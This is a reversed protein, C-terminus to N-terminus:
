PIIVVSRNSAAAVPLWRAYGHRQRARLLLSSTVLLRKIKEM